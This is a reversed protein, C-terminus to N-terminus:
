VGLAGQQVTVANMVVIFAGVLKGQLTMWYKELVFALLYFASVGYRRHMVYYMVLLSALELLAYLLSSWVQQGVQEATMASVVINYSANPTLWVGGLVFAYLVPIVVEM